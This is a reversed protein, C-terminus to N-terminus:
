KRRSAPTETPTRDSWGEDAYTGARRAADDLVERLRQPLNSTVSPDDRHRLWFVAIQALLEENSLGHIGM